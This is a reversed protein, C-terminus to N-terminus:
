KNNDLLTKLMGKLESIEDKLQDIERNQKSKRQKMKMYNTYAQDNVNIVAGTETNKYLSSDQEVQVYESM